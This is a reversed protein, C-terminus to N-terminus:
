LSYNIRRNPLCTRSAYLPYLCIGARSCFLFEPVSKRVLCHLYNLFTLNRYFPRYLSRNSFTEGRYIYSQPKGKVKISVYARYFVEWAYDTRELLWFPYVHNHEPFICIVKVASYLPLVVRGFSFLYSVEQIRFKACIYLTISSYPYLCNPLCLCLSNRPHREIIRYIM